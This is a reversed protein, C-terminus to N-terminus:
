RNQLTVVLKGANPETSTGELDRHRFEVHRDPFGLAAWPGLRAKPGLLRRALVFPGFACSGTLIADTTEETFNGIFDAFGEIRSSAIAPYTDWGLLTHNQIQALLVAQAAFVFVVAAAVGAADRRDTRPM